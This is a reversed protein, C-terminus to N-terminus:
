DGEKPAEARMQFMQHRVSDTEAIIETISSQVYHSTAQEPQFRSPQNSYTLLDLAIVSEQESKTKISAVQNVYDHISHM